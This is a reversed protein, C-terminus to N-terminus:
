RDKPNRHHRRNSQPTMSSDGAERRPNREVVTQDDRVVMNELGTVRYLHRGLLLAVVRGLEDRLESDDQAGSRAFEVSAPFQSFAIGMDDAIDHAPDFTIAMGFVEGHLVRGTALGEPPLLALGLFKEVVSQVALPDGKSYVTYSTSM